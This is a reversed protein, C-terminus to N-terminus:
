QSSHQHDPARHRSGEMDQDPAPRVPPRSPAAGQKESDQGWLAPNTHTYARYYGRSPVTMKGQYGDYGGGLAYGSIPGITKITLTLKQRGHTVPLPLIDTYYFFRGRFAPEDAGHNLAEYDGMHRYGLQEGNIYLLAKQGGNIDDGWFKVTFYNQKVPDVKLDFSLDGGYYDIPTKPLSVRAPEGLAGTVSKTNEGEFRHAQESAANGFIITDLAAGSAVPQALAASTFATLSVAALSVAALAFLSSTKM